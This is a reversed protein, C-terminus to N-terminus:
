FNGRVLFKDLLRKNACHEALFKKLKFSEKVSRSNVLFYFQVLRREAKSNGNAIGFSSTSCNCRVENKLLAGFCSVFITELRQRKYNFFKYHFLSVTRVTYFSERLHFTQERLRLKIKDSWLIYKMDLSQLSLQYYKFHVNSTLYFSINISAVPHISHM